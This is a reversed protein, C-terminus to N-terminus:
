IYYILTTDKISMYVEVLPKKKVTNALSTRVIFVRVRLERLSQIRLRHGRIIELM